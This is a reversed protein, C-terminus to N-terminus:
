CTRVDMESPLSTMEVKVEDYRAFYHQSNQQYRNTKQNVVEYVGMMTLRSSHNNPKKNLFFLKVKGSLEM